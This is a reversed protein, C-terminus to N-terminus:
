NFVIQLGISVSSWFSSTSGTIEVSVSDGSMWTIGDLSSTSSLKSGSGNLYFYHTGNRKIEGTYTEGDITLEIYVSGGSLIFGGSIDVQIVFERGSPLVLSTSRTESSYSESSAFDTSDDGDTIYVSAYGDDRDENPVIYYTEGDEETYSYNDDGEQKTIEKDEQNLDIIEEAAEASTYVLTISGAIVTSAGGDTSVSIVLSLTPLVPQEKLNKGVSSLDATVEILYATGSVVEICDSSDDFVTGNVKLTYEIGELNGDGNETLTAYLTLGSLDSMVVAYHGNISATGTVSYRGNNKQTIGVTSTDFVLSTDVTFDDEDYAVSVPTGSGSYSCVDVCTYVCDVDAEGSVTTSYAYVPSIFLASSFLLMVAVSVFLLKADRVINVATSMTNWARHPAPASRM